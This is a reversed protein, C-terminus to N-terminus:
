YGVEGPRRFRTQKFGSLSLSVLVPAGLDGRAGHCCCLRREADLDERRQPPPSSDSMASLADGADGSGDQARPLLGLPADGTTAM